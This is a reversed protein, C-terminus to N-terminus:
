SNRRTGELIREVTRRLRDVMQKRQDQDANMYKSGYYKKALATKYLSPRKLEVWCDWIDFSEQSRKRGPTLRDRVPLSMGILSGVDLYNKLFRRLFFAFADPSKNSAALKVARLEMIHNLEIQLFEPPLPPPHGDPREADSFIDSEFRKYFEDWSLTQRSETKRM